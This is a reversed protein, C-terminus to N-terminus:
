ETWRRGARYATLREEIAEALAVDGRRTALDLAVQADRVAETFRGAAAYAAARVDLSRADDGGSLRHARDALRIAEVVALPDAQADATADTVTLWALSRLAVVSDPNAQVLQAFLRRADENRGLRVQVDALLLAADLHGPQRHLAKTLMRAAEDLRGLAALSVGHQYAATFPPQAADTLPALQRAAEDHLGLEALAIGLSVRADTDDPRLELAQRYAAVAQDHRGQAALVAGLSRHAEAFDPRAAIAAQFHREAEDLRGRQALVAGLQAHADAFTADLEIARQLPGVAEDGRGLLVLMLGLNYHAEALKPDAEAAKRFQEIAGRADGGAALANGLGLLAKPDDGSIALAREFHGAAAKADGTAMLAHALQYHAESLDDQIAVAKSLCRVAEAADGDAMAMLGLNYWALLNRGERRAADAFLERARSANGRHLHMEGLAVAAVTDEPQLAVAREYLGLAEDARGQRQRILALNRLAGANRENLQLAREIHASAEDIQERGLLLSGLNNHAMWSTPNHLLVHRYLTELDRYVMSQAFTRAALAALLVAGLAVAAPRPLRAVACAALVILGLSALYQFHDAVFSFVFPYVDLFGIAPLLTGGFFLVAVLPGVGLRKRSLLLAVVLGVAGAPFVWQWWAGTDITWRPYTFVLPHPWVLKGAYFWVARGAILLRDLITFGFDEGKAGVMHREFWATFLGMAAGVVFFPVLPRVDAWGLRGQKWWLVLLLAAPLSATVSKSLLAAVFLGLSVWYWRSPHPTRRFHHHLYALAAAMYFAGSLTNKLETIWAVSEVHVPHLAFIGAALAATWPQLGLRLLVLLLLGSSTVHLALNVLKYGLPQEGFLQYQVWFGTHAMPYYQPAAGPEVWIRVLGGVSRLALNHTVHADDDWIFGGRLAPLYAVVAALGVGAVVM